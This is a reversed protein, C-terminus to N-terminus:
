LGRRSKVGGHGSCDGDVAVSVERYEVQAGAVCPGGEVENGVPRRNLDSAIDDAGPTAVPAVVLEGEVATIGVAHLHTHEAVLRLIGIRASAVRQVGLDEKM